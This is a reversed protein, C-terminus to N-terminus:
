QIHNREQFLKEALAVNIRIKRGRQEIAPKLFTDKYIQATTHCVNFMECIGRLGYRYEAKEAPIADADKKISEITERVIDSAFERLQEATLVIINDTTM